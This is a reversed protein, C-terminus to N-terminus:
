GLGCTTMKLERKVHSGSFGKGHLFLDHIIFKFRSFISRETENKHVVPIWGNAWGFGIEGVQEKGM